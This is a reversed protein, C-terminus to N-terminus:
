GLRSEFNEVPKAAYRGYNYHGEMKKFGIRGARAILYKVVAIQGYIKEKHQRAEDDTIGVVVTPAAHGRPIEELPAQNTQLRHDYETREDAGEPKIETICGNKSKHRLRWPPFQQEYRQEAADHKRRRRAHVDSAPLFNVREVPRM